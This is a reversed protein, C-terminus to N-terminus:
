EGLEGFHRGVGIQHAAHFGEVVVGEPFEAIRETPDDFAAPVIRRGVPSFDVVGTVNEFGGQDEAAPSIRLIVAVGFADQPAMDQRGLQAVCGKDIIWGVGLAFVAFPGDGVAM